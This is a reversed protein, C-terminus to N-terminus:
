RIFIAYLAFGIASLAGGAFVLGLSCLTFLLLGNQIGLAARVPEGVEAIRRGRWEYTRFGNAMHHVWLIPITM